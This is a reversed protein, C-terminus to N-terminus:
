KESQGMERSARRERWSRWIYEPVALVPLGLSVRVPVAAQNPDNAPMMFMAGRGGGVTHESSEWGCTIRAGRQRWWSLMSFVLRGASSDALTVSLGAPACWASSGAIGHRCEVDSSHISPLLLATVLPRGRSSVAALRATIWSADDSRLCQANHLGLAIYRPALLM